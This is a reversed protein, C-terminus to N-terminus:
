FQFKSKIADMVSGLDNKVPTPQNAYQCGMGDIERSHYAVKSNAFKLGNATSVVITRDTPAIIGRERLKILAALAVGTHPCNFMGALLACCIQPLEQVMGALVLCVAEVASYLM